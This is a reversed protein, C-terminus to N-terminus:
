RQMLNETVVGAVDSAMCADAPPALPEIVVFVCLGFARVYMFVCMCVSMFRGRPILKCLWAIPPPVRLYSRLLLNTARLGAYATAAECAILQESAIRCM